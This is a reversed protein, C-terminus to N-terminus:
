SLGYASLIEAIDPMPNEPMQCTGRKVQSADTIIASGQFKQALFQMQEDTTDEPVLITVSSNELNVWDTELVNPDIGELCITEIGSLMGFATLNLREVGSRIHIEKLSESGIFASYDIDKANVCIQELGTVGFCQMGIRDVQNKCWVTKLNKCYNFLYNDMQRVGNVFIVTKLGQLEQFVGNNTNELPAYCIVTELDHCDMFASDEISKLTEPLILCRMPIWDGEEQNTAMESTLYDRACEFANYSINEVPVGGITRPIIVDVATGTYATITRTDPDFEFNDEALPEYPMKVLSPEEGVRHLTDYWPDGRMYCVSAPITIETLAYNSGLCGRGISILNESLTIQTLNECFSLAGNRLVTVSDPLVVSTLTDSSGLCSMYLVKVPVGDLTDPVVVNTDTGMYERLTYAESDFNWITEEEASVTMGTLMLIVILGTLIRKM